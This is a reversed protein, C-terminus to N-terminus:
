MFSIYNASFSEGLNTKIYTIKKLPPTFLSFDPVPVGEMPEAGLVDLM